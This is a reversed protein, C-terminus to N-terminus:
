DGLTSTVESLTPTSGQNALTTINERKPSSLRKRALPPLEVIGSHPTPYRGQCREHLATTECTPWSADRLVPLGAVAMRALSAGKGGALALDAAADDLPIVLPIDARESM